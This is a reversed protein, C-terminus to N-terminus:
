RAPFFIKAQGFISYRDKHSYEGLENDKMFRHIERADATTRLIKGAYMRLQPM